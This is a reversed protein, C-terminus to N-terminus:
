NIRNREHIWGNGRIKDKTIFSAAFSVVFAATPPKRSAAIPSPFCDLLNSVCQILM